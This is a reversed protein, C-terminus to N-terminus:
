LPISVGGSREVNELRRRGDGAFESKGASIGEMHRRLFSQIFSNM